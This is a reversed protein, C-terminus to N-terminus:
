GSRQVGITSSSDPSSLGIAKGRQTTSEEIFPYVSLHLGQQKEEDKFERLYYEEETLKGGGLFMSGWMPFHITAILSSVTLIMVGMWKFGDATSM